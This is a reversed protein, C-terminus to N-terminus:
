WQQASLGNWMVPGVGTQRCRKETQLRSQSTQLTPRHKIYAWAFRKAATISLHRQRINTRWTAALPLACDDALGISGNAPHHINTLRRM